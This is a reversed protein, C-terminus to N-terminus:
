ADLQHSLVWVLAIGAVFGKVRSSPAGSTAPQDAVSRTSSSQEPDLMQVGPPAANPTAM